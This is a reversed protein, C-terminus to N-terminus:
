RDLRVIHAYDNKNGKILDLIIKSGAMSYATGNGEYGLLYFKNAQKPDKGIFPIGDKSAGFLANWSYEMEINLHPFMEKIERILKLNKKDISKQNKEVRNSKKDLGGAIIRNDKTTRFYIYPSKTEWFMVEGKWIHGEIPKSALAYTRYMQYKDKIIPYIHGYGTALVIYKFEIEYGDQTKIKNEDINNIDLKTNEYYTVGNKKNQESIGLIYKYPNVDADHWTRLASPKDLGIQSILDKNSLYEVPFKYKNLLKYEKKLKRKDRNNSAYYISNRNRFGTDKDLEKSLTALDEMAELCMKYFLYADNEGIEKALEYMMIDSTYQLLGTNASSSGQGIRNKEILTVQFGKKSLTDACLNGSMGGGVILVETKVNEKLKDFKGEQNQTKNWYLNGYHLKM